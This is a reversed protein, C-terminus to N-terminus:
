CFKIEGDESMASIKALSEIRLGNGRLTSGGSQYSKEIAIGAGVIDAGAVRCIDCLAILASGTALFDDILLVREGRFLYERSLTLDYSTKRTFSVVPSSYFDDSSNVSRSKKAFVLPVNFYRATSYAISIGSSEITIIKDIKEDSFLRYFEEGMADILEVDIQHNLFSDVKLVNGPLVKGDKLIRDELLKMSFIRLIIYYTVIIFYKHRKKLVEPTNKKVKTNEIIKLLKKPFLTM